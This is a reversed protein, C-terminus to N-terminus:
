MQTGSPEVVSTELRPWSATPTPHEERKSHSPHYPAHNSESAVPTKQGFHRVQSQPDTPALYQVPAVHETLVLPPYQPTSRSYLTDAADTPKPADDNLSKTPFDTSYAMESSEKANRSTMPLISHDKSTAPESENRTDQSPPSPRSKLYRLSVVLSQRPDDEEEEAVSNDSMDVDEDEEEDDVRDDPEDEDGGNWENGSSTADSEDDMSLSDYGETHKGSLTKAKVRSQQAARRPRGRSVPEEEDEDDEAAGSGM